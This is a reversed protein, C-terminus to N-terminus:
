PCHSHFNNEANNLDTDIRCFNMNQLSKDKCSATYDNLYPNSFDMFITADQDTRTCNFTSLITKDITPPAAYFPDSGLNMQALDSNFEANQPASVYRDERFETINTFSQTKVAGERFRLANVTQGAYKLVSFSSRQNGGCLSNSKQRVKGNKLTATLEAYTCSDGVRSASIEKDTNPNFVLKGDVLALKSSILSSSDGKSPDSDITNVEYVFNKSIQGNEYRVPTAGGECFFLSHEYYNNAVKNASQGKIIFFIDPNGGISMGSVSVKVLKSSADKNPSLAEAVSDAGIVTVGEKASVMKRLYCLTNEGKLAIEFSRALDQALYCAAPGASEGDVQKGPYQQCSNPSPTGGNIDDIVGDQWFMDKLPTNKLSVLTPPTGTVDQLNLSAKSRKISVSNTAPPLKSILTGRNVLLKIYKALLTSAPTASSVGAYALFSTLIIVISIARKM